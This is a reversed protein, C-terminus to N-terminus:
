PAPAPAPGLRIPTGNPMLVVRMWGSPDLPSIKSLSFGPINLSTLPVKIPSQQLKLKFGALAINAQFPGMTTPKSEDDFLTQVKTGASPIFDEVKADLETPPGSGEAPVKYSLVFEATPILFRIVRSAPMLLGGREAGPLAPVDMQFERVLIVLFGRDDVAFEPPVGPKKIRIATVNPNNAARAEQVNKLFTAFDVNKGITVGERPPAGPQVAKTVIM